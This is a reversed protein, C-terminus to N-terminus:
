ARCSIRYRAPRVMDCVCSQLMGTKGAAEAETEEMVEMRRLTRCYSDVTDFLPGVCTHWMEAKSIKPYRAKGACGM